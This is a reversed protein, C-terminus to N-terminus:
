IQIKMIIQFYYWCKNYGTWMEIQGSTNFMKQTSRLQNKAVM